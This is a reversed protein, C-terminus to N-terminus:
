CCQGAAGQEDAPLATAHRVYRILDELVAHESRGGSGRSRAGSGYRTVAVKFHPPILGDVYNLLRKEERREHKKRLSSVTNAVYM